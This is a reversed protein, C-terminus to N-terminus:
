LWAAFKEFPGRIIHKTVIPFDTIYKYVNYSFVAATVRLSLLAPLCFPTCQKGGINERTFTADPIDQRRCLMLSIPRRVKHLMRRRTMEFSLLELSKTSRYFIHSPVAFRRKRKAVGSIEWKIPM